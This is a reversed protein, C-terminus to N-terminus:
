RVSRGSMPSLPSLDILLSAPTESRPPTALPLLKSSASSAQSPLPPPSQSRAAAGLAALSSHIADSQEAGMQLLAPLVHGLKAAVKVERADRSCLKVVFSSLVERLSGLPLEDDVAASTPAAHDPPVERLAALAEEASTVRLEAAAVQDAVFATLLARLHELPEDCAISPELPTADFDAAPMNDPPDTMTSAAASARETMVAVSARPAPATQTAVDGCAPQDERCFDVDAADHEHWGLEPSPEEEAMHPPVVLVAALKAALSGSPM